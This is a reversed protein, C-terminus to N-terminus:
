SVGHTKKYDNVAEHILDHTQQLTIREASGGNRAAYYDKGLRKEIKRTWKRETESATKKGLQSSIWKLMEKASDYADGIAMSRKDSDLITDIAGHVADGARSLASKRPPTKVQPPAATPEPAPKPRNDIEDLRKTREGFGSGANWGSFTDRIAGGAAKSLDRIAGGAVSPQRSFDTGGLANQYPRPMRARREEPTEKRETPMSAAKSPAASSTEAQPAATTQIAQAAVPPAKPTLGTSLGEGLQQHVPAKRSPRTMGQSYLGELFDLRRQGEQEPTRRVDNWNEQPASQIAQQQTNGGAKEEPPGVHAFGGGSAPAGGLPRTEGTLDNLLGTYPKGDKDYSDYTNWKGTSAAARAGTARTPNALATQRAYDAQRTSFMQHASQVNRLGGIVDAIDKEQEMGHIQDLLQQREPGEQLGPLLKLMNFFLHQRKSFPGTVAGATSQSRAATPSKAGVAAAGTPIGRRTQDIENSQQALRPNLAGPDEYTHEKQFQVERAAAIEAEAAQRAALQTDYKAGTAADSAVNDAHVRQQEALGRQWEMDWRAKDRESQSTDTAASMDQEGSVDVGGNVM